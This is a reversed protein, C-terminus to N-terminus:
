AEVGASFIDPDVYVWRMGAAEAATLGLKSDEFVVCKTPDVGLLEAAKLFGDPAPKSHVVDQKTVVIDFLHDIGCYHLTGHVQHRDGGSAVAIPLGKAKFETALKVVQHIPQINAHEKQLFDNQDSVVTDPELSDGFRENLQEVSHHMGVGAMSYFLDWTFEFKARNKIFAHRWARYHLPMTDALTGDCDFIYALTEGEPLKLDSM